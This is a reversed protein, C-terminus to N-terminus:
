RNELWDLFGSVKERPVLLKDDIHVTLHVLLKRAFYYEVEKVAQFNILFQRNLRFFQKQALLNQIHDLSYNLSYEQGDFCVLT